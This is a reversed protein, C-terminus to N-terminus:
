DIGLKLIRKEMEGSALDAATDATLCHVLLRNEDLDITVTGPTLTISNGLIVKGSDSKEKTSYEVLSPQIPMSPSIVVRAVAISSKVIEILLWTWYAPLRLM